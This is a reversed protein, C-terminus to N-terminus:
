LGWGTVIKVPMIWNFPFFYSCSHCRKDRCYFNICSLLKSVEMSVNHPIHSVYVSLRSWGFPSCFIVLCVSVCEFFSM